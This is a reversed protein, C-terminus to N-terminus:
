AIDCVAKPLNELRAKLPEDIRAPYRYAWAAEVLVRRARRNGALSRLTAAASAALWRRSTLRWRRVLNAARRLSATLRWSRSATLAALQEAYAEKDREAVALKAELAAIVALHTAVEDPSPPNSRTAIGAEEAVARELLTLREVPCGYEARSLVIFFGPADGELFAGERLALFGCANLDSVVLRFTSPTFQWAHIDVFSDSAKGGRLCSERIAAVRLLSAWRQRFTVLRATRGTARTTRLKMSFRAPRMRRSGSSTPRCIDGVSTCPRLVDFAFRKDPVTLVLVGEPRLLKECEVLFGLLDTTHEIVHSAVIYSYRSVAGILESLAEGTWVYDVEEIRDLRPVGAYKTRLQDAPLHDLIEVEYGESKPL